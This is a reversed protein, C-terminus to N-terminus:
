LGSCAPLTRAVRAGASPHRTHSIGGRSLSVIRHDGQLPLEDRLVAPRSPRPSGADDPDHAATSRGRFASIINRPNNIEHAVVASLFRRHGPGSPRTKSTQEVERRSQPLTM